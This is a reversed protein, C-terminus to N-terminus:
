YIEVSHIVSSHKPFYYYKDDCLVRLYVNYINRNEVVYVDVKSFNYLTQYKGEGLYITIQNKIKKEKAM